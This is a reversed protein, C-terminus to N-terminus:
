QIAGRVGNLLEASLRYDGPWYEWWPDAPEDHRVLVSRALQDARARDGQRFLLAALALTASQADPKLQLASEYSRKAEDVRGLRDLAMGRFLRALYILSPEKTAPEVEDLAKIADDMKGLDLNVRALRLEAEVHADPAKAADAFRRAAEERHKVLDGPSTKGPQYFAATRLEEAIARELALRPEKPFQYKVHVAHLELADPDVAGAIIAFGAMQAAHDFDDPKEHRRIQRCAWEVLKTAGPGQDVHAAAADLAFAIIARRRRETAAGSGTVWKPLILDLDDELQKLSGITPLKLLIEARNGDTYARLWDLVWPTQAGATNNSLPWMLVIAAAIAARAILPRM